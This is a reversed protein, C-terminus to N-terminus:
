DLYGYEAREVQQRYFYKSFLRTDFSYQHESVNNISQKM